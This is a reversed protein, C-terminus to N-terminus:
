TREGNENYLNFLFELREQDSHFPEERYCNDIAADLIRHAILLGKSMTNPDYMQARTKESEKEREALVDYVCGTIVEKRNKTIVPFPFTNYGLRSSYRIRTELGGCVTRIWLNHMQSSVVGFVWPECDYVAFALNTIVTNQDVFGIPIYIRRESSVSPIILSHSRTINTERFQHPREALKNAAADKSDLRMKKVRAVREKIPPILLAENVDNDDIWICWREINNIFEESGMVRKIFKESTPYKSVLETKEYPTLLLHGGDYPMNGKPMQPLNSMPKNREFVIVYGTTLYPNIWPVEYAITQSYIFKKLLCANPRVGIIVVTVTTNNRGSNKWRFATHAFSIHVNKEFIKPWLLGVQQGQALSNTVVFAFANKSNEIFKTALYFWCAAYDLDKTKNHKNFVFEVDARQHATQKRAGKYPPNGVIYIENGEIPCIDNWRTRTANGHFINNQNLLHLPYKASELGKEGHLSLQCETFFLGLRTVECAFENMEIGYFQSINLTPPIVATNGALNGISEIIKFELLKLEKYIVILFNGTGCAPDFIRIKTIRNLLNLSEKLNDRVVEYKEYLEDMFLPGILKNINPVSTFNFSLTKNSESFVISQILSGLIDPNVGSWDLESIDLILERTRKNFRPLEYETSFLTINIIPLEELLHSLGKRDKGSIARFMNEFLLGLNDGSEEAYTYILKYITGRVILGVSDAFFCFLLRSMLKSISNEPEHANRNVMLLENYLQAFKEAVKIDVSEGSIQGKKEKGILPFFFDFYKYLEKKSSSLIEETSSDYALIYDYNALLILRSKVKNLNNRKLLNFLSYLNTKTTYQYYLKNSIYLPPYEVDTIDKTLRAITAQPIGYAFLFQFIFDHNDKITGIKKIDYQLEELNKM